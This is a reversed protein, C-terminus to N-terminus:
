KNECEKKNLRFIKRLFARYRMEIRHDQAPYGSVVANDPINKDVGSRALLVANRGITVHNGIAAQGYISVNDGIKAWGSIGTCAVIHCNRGINVEHGIQVLNEIQTDDGIYTTGITGREIVVNGGIHVNNGIVTKGIVPIKIWKDAKRSYEYNETGICCCSGIVTNNGITSNSGIVTNAGIICNRGIITNEGIVAGHSIITDSGIVSGNGISVCNDMIVTDDIETLSDTNHAYLGQRIMYSITDALVDYPESKTIIYNRHLPLGISARTLIAGASTDAIHDIKSYPVYTLMDSTSENMLSIGYIKKNADGIIKCNLYEAVERLTVFAKIM